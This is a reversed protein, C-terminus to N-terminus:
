ETEDKKKITSAGSVDIDKTVGDGKYYVTSGGSAEGSLEKAVWIHINSAGSADVKCFDTKLNYGKVSCAGSADIQTNTATGAIKLNAAGSLDLFATEVALTGEFDSAGDLEIKLNKTTISQAKVNCAGSAELRELTKFTVSAKLKGNVSSHWFGKDEFYIKLTGGSVETKIRDALETSSASVSVAEDTGQVLTLEIAGSVEIANFGNVNRVSPETQINSNNANCSVLGFAIAILGLLKKM